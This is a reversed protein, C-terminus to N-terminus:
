IEEMSEIKWHRNVNVPPAGVTGNLYAATRYQTDVSINSATRRKMSGIFSRAQAYNWVSKVPAIIEGRRSFVPRIVIGEHQWIGDIRRINLNLFGLGLEM